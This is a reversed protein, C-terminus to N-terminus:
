TACPTDDQAEAGVDTFTIRRTDTPFTGFFPAAVWCPVFANITFTPEVVTVTDEFDPIARPFVTATFAEVVIVEEEFSKVLDIIENEQIEIEALPRNILLDSLIDIMTNSESALLSVDYRLDSEPGRATTVIRNILYRRNIGFTPLDVTILEGSRLGDKYTTFTGVRVEDGWRKLEAKARLNAAASSKLTKDVIVFEHIGFDGISVTDDFQKILPYEPTSTSDIVDSESPATKFRIHGSNPNYLVAITADEDDVGEKGLTQVVSNLKVTISVHDRGIFWTTQGSADQIWTNAVVNGLLVGGRVIIKNRLQHINESLRLSDGVFNEEDAVLETVNFPAINQEEEFFHIDKDYDVYWDFGIAKALKHLADSVYFFNFNMDSVVVDAVVNTTTFGAEVFSAVIDAIIADATLSEYRRTVLFRDLLFTFDKCLVNFFLLKGQVEERVEVINGGFIRLSDRTVIVEENLAPKFLKSPYRKIRFELIDAEKTLIEIKKFSKWDILSTRNIADITITIM